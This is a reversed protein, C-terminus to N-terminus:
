GDEAPTAVTESINQPTVLRFRLDFVDRPSMFRGPERHWDGDQRDLVVAPIAGPTTGGEAVKLGTQWDGDKRDVVVGGGAGADNLLPEWADAPMYSVGYLPPIRSLMKPSFSPILPLFSVVAVADPVEALWTQYAKLPLGRNSELAMVRLQELPVFADLRAEVFDFRGKGAKERLGQMQAQRTADARTRAEGEGYWVVPMQIVLVRGGDPLDGALKEGLVSGVAHSFVDPHGEASEKGGFLLSLLSLLIAAAGAVVSVTRGAAQGKRGMWWGAAVVVLLLVLLLNM